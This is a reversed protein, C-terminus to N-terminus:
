VSIWRELNRHLNAIRCEEASLILETLGPQHLGKQARAFNRVDQSLVLGIPLEGDASITLDLPRVPDSGPALRDFVFADMVAHDPDDGPRARVVSLVDPFCVITINPFLNYQHMNLLEDTSYGSFDLGRGGQLERIMGALADRLSEGEALEPAPGAPETGKRGVREGMVTVFAEWVGQTDPKNRLRPSAVGYPQILRGHLEWLQQPSNVDDTMGLMERHIGQVHYTESFGEILTKWNCEVPISVLYRCRFDELGCWAIDDPVEGLFETLPECEAALNVFVLPGWTGVNVPFLGFDDNRLPGFGKRSPVERLRGALDWSWRHYPCRLETAGHASGECLASGRHRCVNQFARLVGDNDRVILVSLKGISFEYVDGPRAVHDASCALQWVNPWLREHELAAYDPSIYRSVPVRIAEPAKTGTAITAGVPADDTLEPSETISM